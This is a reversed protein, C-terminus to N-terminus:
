NYRSLESLISPLQQEHACGDVTGLLASSAERADHAETSLSVASAGSPGEAEDRAGAEKVSAREAQRAARYAEFEAKIGRVLAWPDVEFRRYPHAEDDRHGTWIPVPEDAKFSLTVTMGSLMQQKMYDSVFVDCTYGGIDVNNVKTGEPFRYFAKEFERGDKATYMHPHLLAAPVRVRAYAQREPADAPEIGPVGEEGRAFAEELDAVTGTFTEVDMDEGVDRLYQEQQESLVADGMYFDVEHQNMKPEEMSVKEKGKGARQANQKREWVVAAFPLGEEGRAFAEACSGFMEEAELEGVTRCYDSLFRYQDDSVRGLRFKSLLDAVLTDYYLLAGWRREEAKAAARSGECADWSRRWEVAAEPVRDDMHAFADGCAFLVEEVTGLDVDAELLSSLFDHQEDSVADIGWYDLMEVVGPDGKRWDRYSVAM